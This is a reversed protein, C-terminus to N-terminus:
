DSFYGCKRFYIMFEEYFEYIVDFDCFYKDKKDRLVKESLKLKNWIEPKYCVQFFPDLKDIAQCFKAENSENAEFENWYMEFDNFLQKPFREKLKLFAQNENKHKTILKKEDAFYIDGAEIEVVDHYLLIKMVKLEDLKLHIRPLFYQALLICSYTHDASSEDKSKDFRTIKKLEYFTHIKKIEEQLNM